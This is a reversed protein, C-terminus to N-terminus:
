GTEVAIAIVDDRLLDPHLLDKEEEAMDGRVMHVLSLVLAPRANGARAAALIARQHAHDQALRDARVDGWADIDRRAPGLERDELEMHAALVVHFSEFAQALRGAAVADGQLANLADAELARLVGRIHEHERLILERVENPTM